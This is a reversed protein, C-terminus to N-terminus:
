AWSNKLHLKELIMLINKAIGNGRNEPRVSLRYFYLMEGKIKYRVMGSPENNIYSILAKEGNKFDNFISQPTEELASSPPTEDKYELFAEKMLKHVVAAESIKAHRVEM